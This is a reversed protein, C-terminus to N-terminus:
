AGIDAYYGPAEVCVQDSGLDTVTTRSGAFWEIARITQALDERRITAKIPLKWNTKDCVANFFPTLEPGHDLM